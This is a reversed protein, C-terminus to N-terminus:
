KVIIRPHKDLTLTQALIRSNTLILFKKSLLINRFDMVVEHMALFEEKYTPYNQKIYKLKQGTFEIPILNGKHKQALITSAASKSCDTILYFDKKM